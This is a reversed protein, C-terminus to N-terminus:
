PAEHYTNGDWRYRTSRLVAAGPGSYDKYSVDLDYRDRTTGTAASVSQFIDDSEWLLRYRPGIKEFLWFSCGGSGCYGDNTVLVGQVGGPSLPISELHYHEPRCYEEGGDRHCGVASAVEDPVSAPSPNQPPTQTCGSFLIMASLCSLLKHTFSMETGRQAFGSRSLGVKASVVWVTTTREPTTL